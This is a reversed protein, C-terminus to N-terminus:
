SKVHSIAYGEIINYVHIENKKVSTIPLEIEINVISNKFISIAKKLFICSIKKWKEFILISILVFRTRPDIFGLLVLGKGFDLHFNHSAM